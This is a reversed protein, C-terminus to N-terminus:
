EQKALNKRLIEEPSLGMNELEERASVALEHELYVELFTNYTDTARQYDALENAQIFGSMFLALPAHDSNPYKLYVSHFLSDAKILSERESVTAVKKSHYIGAVQSIAQPALESEPYEEVLIEYTAISEPIKDEEFYKAAEDFLQKDSKSSCSILIFAILFLISLLKM